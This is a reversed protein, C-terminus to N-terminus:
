NTGSWVRNEEGIRIRLMFLNAISFVVMTLYLHFVMPVAIFEGIVVIYNPHKLFKYPGKQIPQMGKIRLIKTNWYKGLSIIVWIKTFFLLIYLTLFLGDVETRKLLYEGILSAIFLTHLIIIFPYHKKGYEIAGKARLWKENRRAVVLEALRQLIFASIFIVFDM